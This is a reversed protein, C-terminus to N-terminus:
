ALGSYVTSPFGNKDTIFILVPFITKSLKYAPNSFGNEGDVIGQLMDYETKGMKISLQKLEVNQKNVNYWFSMLPFHTRSYQM